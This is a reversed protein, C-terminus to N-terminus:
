RPKIVKAKHLVVRAIEVMQKKTAGLAGVTVIPAVDFNLSQLFQQAAIYRFNPKSNATDAAPTFPNWGSTLSKIRKKGM